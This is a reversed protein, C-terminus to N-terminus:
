PGMSGAVEPLAADAPCSTKCQKPGGCLKFWVGMSRKLGMLARFRSKGFPVSPNSIITACLAEWYSNARFRRPLDRDAEIDAQPTRRALAANKLPHL